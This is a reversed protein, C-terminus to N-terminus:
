SYRHLTCRNTSRGGPLNTHKTCFTLLKSPRNHYSYLRELIFKINLYLDGDFFIESIERTTLIGVHKSRMVGDEPNQLFYKPVLIESFYEGVKRKNSVFRM